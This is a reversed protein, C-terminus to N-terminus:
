KASVAPTSTQMAQVERRAKHEAEVVAALKFHLDTVKGMRLRAQSTQAALLLDGARLSAATLIDHLELFDPNSAVAQQIRRIGEASLGLNVECAGLKAESLPSSEGMASVQEYAARAQAFHGSHFHAAGAAQYLMGNRLGLNAARDLRVLADPLRALRVLCVGAFLWAVASEPSLECAREFHALAAAPRQAQELEALGMEIIAQPDERNGALKREGMLRYLEDKNQRDAEADEAHGFHHVVFDARATTLHLATLRKTVTEHVCGEYYIGPHSRFLRTTPLPVYAPYPRSEKLLIPNPKSTQFGLRASMDRM